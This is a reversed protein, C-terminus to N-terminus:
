IDKAAFMGEIPRVLIGSELDISVVFEDVAPIMREGSDTSVTYIDTAGNNFVESIKGYLKGSDADIVPLGILDAIFFEGDDLEFDERAAYIVTERLAEAMDIDNIGELHAIVFRKHVYAREIRKSVFNGEKKLYVCAFSALIDPSDCWPDIKVDGKVGHTNIIKGCELYKEGINSM